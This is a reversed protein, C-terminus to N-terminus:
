SETRFSRRGSQDDPVIEERAISPVSKVTKGANQADRLLINFAFLRFSGLPLPTTREPNNRPAGDSQQRTFQSRNLTTIDHHTTPHLDSDSLTDPRSVPPRSLTQPPRSDRTTGGAYRRHIWRGQTYRQPHRSCRQLSLQPFHRIRPYLIRVRTELASASFDEYRSSRVLLQAQSLRSRDSSPPFRLQHHFTAFSSFARILSQELQAPAPGVASSRRTIRLPHNRSFLKGSRRVFDPFHADKEALALSVAEPSLARAYCARTVADISMRSACPLGASFANERKDEEFKQM